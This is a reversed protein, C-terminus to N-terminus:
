LKTVEAEGATINQYIPYSLKDVYIDVNSFRRFRWFYHVNKVLSSEPRYWRARFHQYHQHFLDGNSGPLFPKTRVLNQASPRHKEVTVYAFVDCKEVTVMRLGIFGDPAAVPGVWISGIIFSYSSLRRLSSLYNGPFRETIRFLVCFNNVFIYYFFTTTKNYQTTVWM